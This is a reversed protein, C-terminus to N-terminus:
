WPRSVVGDFSTVPALAERDVAVDVLTVVETDLASRLVRELEDARTVTLGRAGFARALAAYDVAAFDNIADIVNQELFKEAHYEFAFGGNNMVVVVVPIGVRVATELESLHYNIGGDGIVCVVRGLPRGLRVGLAGPFAWGLSGAARFYNRGAYAVDFYAATWAAMYGTDSVLADEPGLLSRITKVVSAPHIASTTSGWAAERSMRERRMRDGLKASWDRWSPRQALPEVASRVSRLAQLADAQVAAVIPYNTGLVRSDVDIQLLKIDSPLLRWSDTVLGGLRTGVALLVDCERVIANASLAAYRGVVGVSRAHNEAIIGKGGISSAVPIDLREALMQVEDWAGSLIAGAGALMLPRKAGMLESVLGSIADPDPAPRHSPVRGFCPDAYISQPECELPLLDRPVEYHVPGPPSGTAERIAQRLLRAAQDPRVVAGRWRTVASMHALQDLDQYEYRARSALPLSSSVSVVPSMAWTAEALGAALNSLGPGHQGYVFGPQSSARAYGDAMYVAGKETRCPIMKIGSAQLATWLSPDGGTVQFFYETSYAKLTRAVLDAVRMAM